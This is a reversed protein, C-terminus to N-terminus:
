VSEKALISELEGIPEHESTILAGGNNATNYSLYLPKEHRLISTIEGFQDLHYYINIWGPHDPHEVYENDYLPERDFFSMIGIFSSGRFCRIHAHNANNLSAFQIQYSDFAERLIPM